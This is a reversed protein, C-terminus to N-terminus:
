KRQRISNNKATLDQASSHRREYDNKVDKAVDTAKVFLKETAWTMMQILSLMSLGLWMGIVGGLEGIFSATTYVRSQTVEIYEFSGWLLFISTVNSNRVRQDEVETVSVKQDVSVSYRLQHCDRYCRKTCAQESRNSQKQVDIVCQSYNCPPFTELDGDEALYKTTIPTCHCLERILEMRCRTRCTFEDEDEDSFDRCATGAEDNELMDYKNKVEVTVDHRLGPCLNEHYGDRSTGGGETFKSWDFPYGHFDVSICRKSEETNENAKNQVVQLFFFSGQDAIPKYNDEDYTPQFCVYTRSIWTIKPWLKIRPGEDDKTIRVMQKISKMLVEKGAKQFIEDFTLNRKAMQDVWFQIGKRKENLFERGKPPNNFRYLVQAMHSGLMEREVTFMAALSQFAHLALEPPWRKKLMEENNKFKALQKIVTATDNGNPFHSLVQKTPICFTINPLTMTENLIMNMDAKMPDDLYENFLNFTDRVTLILLFIALFWFAKHRFPMHVFNTWAKRLNFTDEAM